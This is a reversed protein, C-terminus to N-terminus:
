HRRKEGSQGSAPSQDDEGIWEGLKADWLTPEVMYGESWLLGREEYFGMEKFWEILDDISLGQLPSNTVAANFAGPFAADLKKFEEVPKLMRIRKRIQNLDSVAYKDVGKGLRSSVPKKKPAEAVVEAGERVQKRSVRTARSLEETVLQQLGQKTILM